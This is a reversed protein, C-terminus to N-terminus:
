TNGGMCTRRSCTTIRSAAAMLLPSGSASRSLSCRNDPRGQACEPVCGLGATSFCTSSKKDHFALPERPAISHTVLCHPHSLMLKKCQVPFYRCSQRHAQPCAKQPPPDKFPDVFLMSLFRDYRRGLLGCLQNQRTKIKVLVSQSASTSRHQCRTLMADAAFNKVLIVFGTVKNRLEGARAGQAKDPTYRLALFALEELGSPRIAFGIEGNTM